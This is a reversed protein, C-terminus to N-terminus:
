RSTINQGELEDIAAKLQAILYLRIPLAPGIDLWLILHVQGGSRSPLRNLQVDQRVHARRVVPVKLVACCRKSASSGGGATPSGRLVTQKLFSTHHESM